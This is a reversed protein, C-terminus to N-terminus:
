QGGRVCLVYYSGTKVYSTVYGGSFGVTWATSTNGADTTSSWYSSSKISPFYTSNIALNIRTYDVISWLENKNPLRWDTLGALSLGECYTLADAWTRALGDDDKQWVFGTNADSITGNGNNTFNAAYASGAVVMFVVILPLQMLKM